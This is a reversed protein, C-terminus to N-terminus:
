AVPTGVVATVGAEKIAAAAAAEQKARLIEVFTPKNGWSSPPACKLAQKGGQVAGEAGGGASTAEEDDNDADLGHSDDHSV